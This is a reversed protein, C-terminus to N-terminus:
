LDMDSNDDEFSDDGGDLDTEHSHGARLTQSSALHDRCMKICYGELGISKAAGLWLAAQSDSDEASPLPPVMGEDSLEDAAQEVYNFAEEEDIGFEDVLAQSVNNLYFDVADQIDNENSAEGVGPAGKQFDSSSIRSPISPGWASQEVLHRIEGLVQNIRPNM